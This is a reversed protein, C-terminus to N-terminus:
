KLDRWAEVYKRTKANGENWRPAQPDDAIMMVTLAIARDVSKRLNPYDLKNWEDGVKHYDPFEFTTVITTDPM